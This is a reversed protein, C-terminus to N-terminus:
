RGERADDAYTNLRADIADDLTAVAMKRSLNFQVAQKRLWRYRAADRQLEAVQAEAREARLVAENAHQLNEVALQIATEKRLRLSEIRLCLGSVEARLEDVARQDYLPEPNAPRNAWMALDASWMRTLGEETREVWAVAKVEAM